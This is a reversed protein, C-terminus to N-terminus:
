DVKLDLLTYFNCMSKTIFGIRFRVDRFSTSSALSSRPVATTPEDVFVITRIVKLMEDYVNQLFELRKTNVITGRLAPTTRSM